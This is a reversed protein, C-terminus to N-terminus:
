LMIVLVAHWEAQEIQLFAKYVAKTKEGFM